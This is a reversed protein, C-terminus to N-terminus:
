VGLGEAEESLWLLAAYCDDLAAPFPHEPALRYDVAVVVVGLEAAVRSCYTNDIAACGAIYGGGHMWLLAGAGAALDRPRHLIVPVRHGDPGTAALEVTEVSDVVPTPGALRRAAALTRRGKISGSPLLLLNRLEPPVDRYATVARGGVAVGALTAAAAAGLARRM